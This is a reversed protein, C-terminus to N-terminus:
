LKVTPINGCIMLLMHQMYNILAQYVNFIGARTTKGNEIVTLWESHECPQYIGIDALSM